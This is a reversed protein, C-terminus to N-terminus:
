MARVGTDPKKPINNSEDMKNSTMFCKNENNYLIENHSHSM